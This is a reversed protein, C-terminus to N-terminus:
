KRHPWTQVNSFRHVGARGLAFLIAYGVAGAICMLVLISVFLGPLASWVTQMKLDPSYQLQISRAKDLAVVIGGLIVLMLLITSRPFRFEPRMDFRRLLNWDHRSFQARLAGTLAGCIERSWFLARAKLSKKRAAEQARCFVLTMEEGYERFYDAPYLHLLRRYLAEM